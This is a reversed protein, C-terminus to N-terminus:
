PHPRQQLGAIAHARYPPRPEVLMEAIIRDLADPQARGGHQGRRVRDIAHRMQGRQRPQQRLAIRMFADVLQQVAGQIVEVVDAFGCRMEDFELQGHQGLEAEPEIQFGAGRGALGSLQNIDRRFGAARHRPPGSFGPAVPQQPQRREQALAPAARVAPGVLIQLITKLERSQEQQAM